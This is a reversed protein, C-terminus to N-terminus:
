QFVTATMVYLAERGVGAGSGGGAGNWQVFCFSGNGLQLVGARCEATPCLFKIGSGFPLQVFYRAVFEPFDLCIGSSLAGM